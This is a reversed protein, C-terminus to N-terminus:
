PLPGNGVTDGDTGGSEPGSPGGPPLTQEAVSFISSRSKRIDVVIEQASRQDEWSGALALAAEDMNQVQVDNM